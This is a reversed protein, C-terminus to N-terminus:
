LFYWNNNAVKRISTSPKTSLDPTPNDPTYVAPLIVKGLLASVSSFMAKIKNRKFKEQAGQNPRKSALFQYLGQNRLYSTVSHMLGVDFKTSIPIFRHKTGLDETWLKLGLAPDRNSPLYRMSITDMLAKNSSYKDISLNGIKETEDLFLNKYFNPLELLKLGFSRFYPTTKLFQMFSVFKRYYDMAFSEAQADRVRDEGLEQNSIHHIVTEFLADPMSGHDSSKMGATTSTRLDLVHQYGDNGVLNVVIIDNPTITAKGFSDPFSSISQIVLYTLRQLDDVNLVTETDYSELFKRSKSELQEFDVKVRFVKQDYIDHEHHVSLIELATLIEYAHKM